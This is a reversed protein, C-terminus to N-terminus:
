SSTITSRGASSTLPPPILSSIPVIFGVTYYKYNYINCILMINNNLRLSFNDRMTKINYLYISATFRQMIKICNLFHYYLIRKPQPLTQM